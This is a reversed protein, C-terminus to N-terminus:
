VNVGRFVMMCYAALAPHFFADSSPRSLLLHGFRRMNKAM